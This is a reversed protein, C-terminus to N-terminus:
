FTYTALVAVTMQSSSGAIDVISSDAADGILGKAQVAGIIGWNKDISYRGILTAAVDKFGSEARYYPLGSFGVNQPTVSFYTSMYDDSAYTTSLNLGLTAAPSLVFTYGGSLSALSGDHGDAFDHSMELRANWQNAQFGIFGGVEVAADVQKMRKVRENSVDDNREARYRVLPGFQWTGGEVLNATLTGGILQLYEGSALQARFYPVPAGKYDESGEFEPVLAAGLGVTYTTAKVAQVTGDDLDGGVTVAAFGSSVAGLMCVSTVALVRKLERKM